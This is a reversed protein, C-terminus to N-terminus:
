ATYFWGLTIFFLIEILNAKLSPKYVNNGSVNTSPMNKIFIDSKKFELLTFLSKVEYVFGNLM